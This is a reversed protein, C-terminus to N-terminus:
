PPPPPPAIARRYAGLAAKIPGSRAPTLCQDMADIMWKATGVLPQVLRADGADTATLDYDAANRESRLTGLSHSVAVLDTDGSNGLYRLVEGHGGANRAIPIGWGRLMAAAVNFAASYARGAASRLGAPAGRRCLESAIRHFDRPDTPM